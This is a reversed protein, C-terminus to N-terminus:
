KSYKIDTNQLIFGVRKENADRLLFVSLCCFNSLFFNIAGGSLVTEVSGNAQNVACEVM